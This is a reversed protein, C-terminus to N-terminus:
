NRERDLHRGAMRVGVRVRDVQAARADGRPEDRNRQSVHMRRDLRDREVVDLSAHPQDDRERVAELGPHAELPLTAEIGARETMTEATRVGNPRSPPPSFCWWAVSSPAIAIRAPRSRAPSSGSSTCYTIM